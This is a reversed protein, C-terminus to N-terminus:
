VHKNLIRQRYTRSDLNTYRVFLSIKNDENLNSWLEDVFEPGFVEAVQDWLPEDEKVQRLYEKSAHFRTDFCGSCLEEIIDRM